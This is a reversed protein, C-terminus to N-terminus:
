VIDEIYKYVELIGGFMFFFGYWVGEEGGSVGMGLYLLGKVKVIEVRCEMNEYWENGGDIICDGEELYKLLFEIM